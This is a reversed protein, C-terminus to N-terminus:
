LVPLQFKQAIVKETREILTKPVQENYTANLEKETLLITETKPQPIDLNKIKPYWFLLSSKDM